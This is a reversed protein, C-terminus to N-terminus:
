QNTIMIEDLSYKNQRSFLKPQFLSTSLAM